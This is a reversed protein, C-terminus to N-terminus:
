ECRDGEGHARRRRLSAGLAIVAVSVAVAASDSFEPIPSIIVPSEAPPALAFQGFTGGLAGAENAVRVPQHNEDLAGEFGTISFRADAGVLGGELVAAEVSGLAAAAEARAPSAAWAGKEFAFFEVAVVVGGVGEVRLLREAGIGAVQAGTSADRDTDLYVELRDTGAIRPPPPAPTAGAPGPPGIPGARLPLTGGMAAGRVEVLFQASATDGVAAFALFDLRSPLASDAADSVRSIGAWDSFQGDVRIGNQIALSLPTGRVAFVLAEGGVTLAGTTSAGSPTAVAVEFAHVGQPVQLEIRGGDAAAPVAGHSVLSELDFRDTGSFTSAQAGVLKGADGQIRVAGEAGLAGTWYGTDGSGDLDFFIWVDARSGFPAQAFELYMQSGTPGSQFGARDLGALRGNAVAFTMGEWEAFRGDVHPGNSSEGALVFATLATLAILFGAFGAQVRRRRAARTRKLQRLADRGAFRGGNTRGSGNTFGGGQTRGSGNTFGRAAGAGNGNTLGQGGAAGRRSSARQRRRIAVSSERVQSM